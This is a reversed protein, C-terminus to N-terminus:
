SKHANLDDPRIEMTGLIERTKRTAMFVAFTLPLWAVLLLVALAVALVPLFAGCLVLAAAIVPVFLFAFTAYKAPSMSRLKM